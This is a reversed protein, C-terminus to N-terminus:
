AAHPQAPKQAGYNVMQPSLFEEVSVIEPANHNVDIMGSNMADIICEGLIFIATTYDDKSKYIHTPSIGLEDYKLFFGSFEQCYQPPVLGELHKRTQCFLKHVELLEEKNM